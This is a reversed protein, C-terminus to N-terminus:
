PVSELWTEDWEFYAELSTRELVEAPYPFALQPLEGLAFWALAETEDHESSLEGSVRVCEFVTVVYEVRDGNGYTM